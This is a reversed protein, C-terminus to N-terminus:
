KAKQKTLAIKLVEDIRGVFHFTLGKLYDDNIEEVDKRNENCLIIEKIGARKAALIKEKIGGVPEVKGRLTIEGTMALNRKVKYGTLASVLATVMTIGASPGDKPIAGQPVHIHVNQQEVDEAKLGLAQANSKIYELALVASEKMVDGLNGTLTLKGVKGKNCSAEVYLIVGGVATWALGTVVGAFDNGQYMEKSYRPFGLYDKLNDPTVKQKDEDDIAVKKAAKRMISAIKKDLTRVGSESTHGDIVEKITAAPLTVNSKKLGHAELQKPILHRKAIEVKEQQVYGSVDIIEMRDRLPGSITSLSNATAIFLVKSLDYDVELYNDHFTSNQEPDLVELLASSPDGRHDSGVKDIEDLMFVPNSTGAKRISQIIRGPMAGIYTKRHGRVESEDHLGGLSMRVYERGLAAAISKGLSTKGVGPPGVMCLIPSKMDNKLKLVALYEMIREKVKELGFHDKDLTGEAKKIDFNDDSYTEWPLDLMTNLYNSTVGFEPSSPNTREMKTIEKQFMEEAEKSWKIKKARQKMEEIEQEAPNSGLESQITKIQQNLFYERQQQNLDTSTKHQIDRKIKQFQNESGLIELLAHARDGLKDIELLDQKEDVKFPFHCAIFNILFHLNEINRLAFMSEGPMNNSNEVVQEAVDKIAEELAAKNEGEALSDDLIRESIEVKYYPSTAILNETNFRAVGQLIATISNDPMELIKIVKATTGTLFLDEEKPSDIKADRQAVVGIFSEDKFAKKVLQQSKKRGVAIPLIVGPFLVMNRLPLLGIVEPFDEQKKEIEESESIIPIIAGPEEGGILSIKKEIDFDTMYTIEQTVRDSHAFIFDEKTITFLPSM